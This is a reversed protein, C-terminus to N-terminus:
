TSYNNIPEGKVEVVRSKCPNTDNNHFYDNKDHSAAIYIDWVSIHKAKSLKRRKHKVIFNHMSKLKADRKEMPSMKKINYRLIYTQLFDPLFRKLMHIMYQKRYINSVAM